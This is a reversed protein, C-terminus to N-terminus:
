EEAAIGSEVDDLGDSDDGSTFSVVVDQVTSGVATVTVDDISVPPGFLQVHLQLADREFGIFTPDATGFDPVLLREGPVTLVAVALEQAFAEDSGDEVTELPGAPSVRFPYALLSTPVVAM